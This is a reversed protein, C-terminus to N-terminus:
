ATGGTGNLDFRGTSDGFTALDDFGLMNLASLMVNALPMRDPAELHRGGKLRGGARGFPM